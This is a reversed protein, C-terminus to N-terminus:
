GRSRGSRRGPGRGREPRAEKFAEWRIRQDETLTGSLQDNLDERSQKVTRALDRGDLTLQGVTTPDPSETELEARLAERNAQMQDRLDMTAARHDEHIQQWQAQQDETLELFEVLRGFGRGESRQQDGRRPPQAALTTAFLATLILGAALNRTRNTATTKM